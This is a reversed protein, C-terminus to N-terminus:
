LQHYLITNSTALAIKILYIDHTPNVCCPSIQTFYFHRTLTTHTLYVCLVILQDKHVLLLSPLFIWYPNALVGGLICQTVPAAWSYLYRKRHMKMDKYTCQVIQELREYTIPGSMHIAHTNSYISSNRPPPDNSHSMQLMRHIRSNKSPSIQLMRLMKSNKSTCKPQLRINSCM